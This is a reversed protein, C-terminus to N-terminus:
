FYATTKLLFVGWDKTLTKLPAGGNLASNLGATGHMVHGEVKVLWNQNIDYRLTAAVDHQYMDRGKHNDVNPYLVSYYVGPTFWSSVRYSGMAYWRESV